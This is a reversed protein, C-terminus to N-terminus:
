TVAGATVGRALTRQFIPFVVLAPPLSVRAGDKM